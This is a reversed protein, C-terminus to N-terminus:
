IGPKELASMHKLVQASFASCVAVKCWWTVSNSFEECMSTAVRVKWRAQHKTLCCSHQTHQLNWSNAFVQTLCVSTFRLKALGAHQQVLVQSNHQFCATLECWGEREGGAKTITSLAQGRLSSVGKHQAAALEGWEATDSCGLPALSISSGDRYM